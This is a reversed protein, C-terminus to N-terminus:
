AQDRSMVELVTPQQPPDRHFFYGEVVVAERRYAESEMLLDHLERLRYHPVMPFMHHPLHYEMGLPFVSWRILRGVLFVRSNTLRGIGANGHQVLQRMIMFFSFTTVMPLAWLLFYYLAWPQGTLLTLWALTSFLVTVYAMRLCTQWRTSVDPKILTKAWIRDPTLAYFAVVAALMAPPVMALLWPADLLTFTTLMAMTGLIYGIGIGYLLRSRPKKTEYPGSGANAYQARIRIYRILSPLWLFQKIVCKWVFEGPSMPFDFRHGSAHMQAVDPDRDPDNVYQHHALHQLRYSHTTTWVPFMCFVDSVLENIVRNRFLMYHSAEHGLNVLRHQGAGILLVAVMTVPVNWAWDLGWAAYQQYFAITLGVVLVLLTYERLLYFWNSRNNISRLENVRRQISAADLETTRRSVPITEPM